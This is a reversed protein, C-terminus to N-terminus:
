IVTAVGILFSTKAMGEELYDMLITTQVFHIVTGTTGSVIAFTLPGAAMVFSMRTGGVVETNRLVTSM